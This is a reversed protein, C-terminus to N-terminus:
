LITPTTYCNCGRHLPAHGVNRGSTFADLGPVAISGDKDVFRKKIGVVKGDLHKCYPCSQGRSHWRMGTFGAVFFVMKAIAESARITEEQATDAPKKTEWENYETQLEEVPDKNEEGAKAVATRIDSKSEGITRETFKDLYQDQYEQMGALDVETDAETIADAQIAAFFATFTSTFANRVFGKQEDFYKDLWDDFKKPDLARADRNGSMKTIQKMVDAKERRMVRTAAEEFLPKFLKTTNLRKDPSKPELQARKETRSNQQPQAVVPTPKPLLRAKTIAEVQDLPMMNMPVFRTDGGECPNLDELDRVDNISYWGNQVGTKYGEQRSQFDGRLLGAV